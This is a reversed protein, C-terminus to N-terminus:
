SFSIIEILRDSYLKYKISESIYIVDNTQYIVNLQNQKIFTLAQELEMAYLATSLADAKMSSHSIVSVSKNLIKFESTKSYLHSNVGDNQFYFSSTHISSCPSLEVQLDTQRYDNVSRLKIQNVQEYVLAGGFEVKFNYNGDKLIQCIQDILYGKAIAGLDIPDIIKVLGGEIKLNDNEKFLQSTNFYYDTFKELKIAALLLDNLHKTPRIQKQQNLYSIESFKDYINFSKHCVSTLHQIQKLVVLSNENNDIEVFLDTNFAQMKIQM